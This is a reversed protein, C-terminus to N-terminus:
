LKKLIREITKWGRTTNGKGFQKDLMKMLDPTNGGSLDVVSFLARGRRGLMRFGKGSLKAGARPPKKLFTVFPRAEAASEIDKFPDLEALKQLDTFKYVVAASEFGIAKPLAKEIIQELDSTKAPEAEFLVNGSAIVTKVDQFGMKEFANRLVDMKITPNLGSNIGRLFAVYTRM